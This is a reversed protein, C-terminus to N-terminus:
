RDQPTKMRALAKQLSKIIQRYKPNLKKAAMKDTVQRAKEIKGLVAYANVVQLFIPFKNPKLEWATLYYSLAQETKGTKKYADALNYAIKWSFPYIRQCLELSQIALSYDAIKIAATARAALDTISFPNYKLATNYAKLADRDKGINHFCNGAYHSGEYIKPYYGPHLAAL